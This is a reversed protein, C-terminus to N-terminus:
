KLKQFDEIEKRLDDEVTLEHSSLEVNTRPSKVQHKNQIKEAIWKEISSRDYVFGDSARVPDAMLDGSIVCIYHVPVEEEELNLKKVRDQFLNITQIFDELSQVYSTIREEILATLTVGQAEEHLKRTAQSTGTDAPFDELHEKAILKENLQAIQGRVMAVTTLYSNLRDNFLRCRRAQLPSSIKLNEFENELIPQMETWGTMCSPTLANLELINFFGIKQEKTAMGLFNIQQMLPLPRLHESLREGITPIIISQASVDMLNLVALAMAQLSPDHILSLISHFPLQAYLQSIYGALVSPEEADSLHLTWEQHCQQIALRVTVPHQFLAPLSIIENLCNETYEQSTEQAIQRILSPDLYALFLLKVKQTFPDSNCSILQGISERNRFLISSFIRNSLMFNMVVDDIVSVYKKVFFQLMLQDLLGEPLVGSTHHIFNSILLFGTKGFEGPIRNLYYIFTELSSRQVPDQLLDNILKRQDADFRFNISSLLFILLPFYDKKLLAVGILSPFRDINTQVAQAEEFLFRFPIENPNNVSLSFIEPYNKEIFEFSKQDYKILFGFLGELLQRPQGESEESYYTWCKNLLLIIEKNCLPHSVLEYLDVHKRAYCRRILKHLDNFESNIEFLLVTNIFLEAFLEPNDIQLFENFWYENVFYNFYNKFISHPALLNAKLDLGSKLLLWRLVDYQDQDLFTSHVNIGLFLLYDHFNSLNNVNLIKLLWAYENRDKYNNLILKVTKEPKPIPFAINSLFNGNIASAQENMYLPHNEQIFLLLKPFSMKLGIEFASFKRLHDITLRPELLEHLLAHILSRMVSRGECHVLAVVQAVRQDFEQEEYPISLCDALHFFPARADKQSLHELFLQWELPFRKKLHCARVLQKKGFYRGSFGHVSIFLPIFQHISLLKNRCVDTLTQFFSPSDALIQILAQVILISPVEHSKSLLSVPSSMLLAKIVEILNLETLEFNKINATVEDPTKKVLDLALKKRLQEDKLKFSKITYSALRPRLEVCSKAMAIRKLEGRSETILSRLQNFEKINEAYADFISKYISEKDIKELLKERFYKKIFNCLEKIGSPSLKKLAKSMLSDKFSLQVPIRSIQCQNFLEVFQDTIENTPLRSNSSEPLPLSNGNEMKDFSM